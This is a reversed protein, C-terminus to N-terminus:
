WPGPLFAQSSTGSGVIWCGVSAMTRTSVVVIQPVSRCMRLPSTGPRSRRAADEPVLADARDDLDPVATVVSATPSRTIMEQM